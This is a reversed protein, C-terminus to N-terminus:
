FAVDEDKKDSQLHEKALACAKGFEVSEDSPPKGQWEKAEFNMVVGFWYKSDIRAIQGLTMGKYSKKAADVPAFPLRAFMWPHAEFPQNAGDWQWGCKQCWMVAEYDEHPKTATGKCNPCNAPGKVAGSSQQKAVPAQTTKSALMPVAARLLENRLEPPCNATIAQVASRHKDVIARASDKPNARSFGQFIEEVRADALSEKSPLIWGSDVAYRWWAWYLDPEIQELLRAKCATLFKAWGEEEKPTAKKVPPSAVTAKAPAVPPSAPKPAPKAPPSSKPTVPADQPTKPPEDGEDDGLDQTFIDSAATATITADVFARKKAMKLVTNYFDAPSDHEVKDVSQGEIVVAGDPWKAGCGGKKQFCLWGGGYEAKGKIITEKGCEPCRRAGGKWRYKSELTSCCGVGQGVFSGSGISKLTCIVRYEKHGREYNTEQIAYEPALRFTMTLKQAGPQLLTKRNGCGPIAGYHEGEHMVKGMVEQILRVQAIIESVGMAESRVIAGSQVTAVTVPLETVLQPESM